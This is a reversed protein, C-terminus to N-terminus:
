RKTKEKKPVSGSPRTARVWYGLLGIGLPEFDIVRYGLVSHSSGLLGIVWYHFPPVGGVTNM